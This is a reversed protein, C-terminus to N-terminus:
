LILICSVIFLFLSKTLVSVGQDDEYLLLNCDIFNIYKKYSPLLFM